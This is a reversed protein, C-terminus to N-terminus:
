KIRPQKIDLESFDEMTGMRSRSMPSFGIWFTVISMSFGIRELLICAPLKM